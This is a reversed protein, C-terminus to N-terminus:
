RRGTRSRRLRESLVRLELEVAVALAVREEAPALVREAVEADDRGVRADAVLHVELVERADDEGALALGGVGVREDPRVAVRRHDVPEADEAPADAPDLGLGREETLRLRHEDRVDDAELEDPRQRGPAVAVSRTRVTM